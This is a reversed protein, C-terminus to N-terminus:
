DNSDMNHKRAHHRLRNTIELYRLRGDNITKPKQIGIFQPPLGYAETAVKHMKEIFEYWVDENATSGVNKIYDVFVCNELPLKQSFALTAEADMKCYELVEPEVPAPLLKPETLNMGVGSGKMLNAMYRTELEEFTMDLNVIYEDHTRSVLSADIGAKKLKNVIEEGTM